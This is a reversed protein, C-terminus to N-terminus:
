LDDSDSLILTDGSCNSVTDIDSCEENSNFMVFIVTHAHIQQMSTIDVLEGATDKVLIKSENFLVSGLKELNHLFTVIRSHTGVM